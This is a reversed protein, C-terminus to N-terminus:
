SMRWKSLGQEGNRLGGGGEEGHGADGFAVAAHLRQLIDIKGAAAARDVGHKLVHGSLYDNAHGCRECKWDHASKIKDAIEKWNDPYDNM